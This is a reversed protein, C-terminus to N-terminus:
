IEGTWSELQVTRAQDNVRGLIRAPGARSMAASYAGPPHDLYILSRVFVDEDCVV